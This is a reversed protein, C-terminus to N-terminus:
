ALLELVAQSSVEYRSDTSLGGDRPRDREVAAALGEGEGEVKWACDAGRGGAGTGCWYRESRPSVRHCTNLAPGRGRRERSVQAADAGRRGSGRLAAGAMDRRGGARLCSM